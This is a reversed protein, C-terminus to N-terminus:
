LKDLLTEKLLVVGGPVETSITKECIVPLTGPAAGGMFRTRFFIVETEEVM